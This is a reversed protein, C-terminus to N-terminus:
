VNRADHACQGTGDADTPMALPGLRHYIHSFAAASLLCILPSTVGRTKQQSM